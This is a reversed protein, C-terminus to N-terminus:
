LMWLYKIKTRTDKLPVISGAAIRVGGQGPPLPEEIKDEPVTEKGWTM